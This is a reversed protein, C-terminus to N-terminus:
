RSRRQQSPHSATGRLQPSGQAVERALRQLEPHVKFQPMLFKALHNADEMALGRLDERAGGKKGAAFKAFVRAALLPVKFQQNESKNTDVTAILALADDHKGTRAWAEAVVTVLLGRQAARESSDVNIKDVLPRADKARGFSLYLHSLLVAFDDQVHAPIKKREVAELIELAAKPDDAAVLQARAIINTVDGADKGAELKAIAARRAEPSQTANQLLSALGKQRKLLRIVWFAIGALALTVAGMVSLFITSKSAIAMAWLAVVVAGVILLNKKAFGPAAIPAETAPASELQSESSAKPNAV